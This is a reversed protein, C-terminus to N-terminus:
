PILREFAWRAHEALIPDEHETYPRVVEILDRRGSNGAAVLANRRLVDPRRRPLYFRDFAELLADDEANLVWAIDVQGRHESSRELLRVGPPCADLCDDCGYLRDGM